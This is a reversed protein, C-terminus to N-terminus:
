KRANLQNLPLPLQTPRVVGPEAHKGNRILLHSDKKGVPMSGPMGIHPRMGIRFQHWRGPKFRLSCRGPTRYDQHNYSPAVDGSRPLGLSARGLPYGFYNLTNSIRTQGHSESPSGRERRDKMRLSSWNKM